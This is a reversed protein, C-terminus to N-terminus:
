FAAFPSGVFPSRKEPACDTFVCRLVSAGTSDFGVIAVSLQHRADNLCANANRTEPLMWQGMDIYGQTERFHRLCGPVNCRAFELPWTASDPMRMARIVWEMPEHHVDCFVQLKEM